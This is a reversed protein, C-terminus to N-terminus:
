IVFSRNTNYTEEYLKFQNRIKDTEFILCDSLIYYSIKNIDIGIEEIQKKGVFRKKFSM